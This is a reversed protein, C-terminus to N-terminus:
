LYLLQTHTFVWYSSEKMKCSFDLGIEEIFQQVLTVNQSLNVKCYCM